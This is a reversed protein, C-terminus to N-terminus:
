GPPSDTFRDIVSAVGSNQPRPKAGALRRRLPRRLTALAEGEGFGFNNDPSAFGVAAHVPPAFGRLAM